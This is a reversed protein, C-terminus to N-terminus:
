ARQRESKPRPGAGSKARERDIFRGLWSAWAKDVNNITRGTKEAHSRFSEWIDGITVGNGYCNWHRLLQTAAQVQEPTPLPEVASATRGLGDHSADRAPSNRMAHESLLTGGASKPPLPADKRGTTSSFRGTTSPDSAGSKLPLPNSPGPTLTIEDALRMGQAGRKRRSIFGDRDLLSLHARVTTVGMETHAALTEQKLMCTGTKWDAYTAIANLVAKAGSSGVTQMRAWQVWQWGNDHDAM